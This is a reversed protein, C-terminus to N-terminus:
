RTIPENKRVLKHSSFWKSRNSDLLYLMLFFIVVCAMINFLIMWVKGYWETIMCLVTFAVMGSILYRGFDFYFGEKSLEKKDTLWLVLGTLILGIVVYCVTHSVYNSINSFAFVDNICGLWVKFENATMDMSAYDIWEGMYRVPPDMYTTCWAYHEDYEWSYTDVLGLQTAALLDYRAGNASEMTFFGMVSQMLKNEYLQNFLWNLSTMTMFCTGIFGVMKMSGSVFICEMLYLAGLLMVMYSIITVLMGCFAELLWPIYIGVKEQFFTDMQLYISLSYVLAPIILQLLDMIIHFRMRNTKRIPLSQIFERGCRTQEVWYIFTKKVLLCIFIVKIVEDFFYYHIRGMVGQLYELVMWLQIKEGLPFDDFCYGYEKIWDSSCTFLLIVTTVVIFFIHYKWEQKWLKSM